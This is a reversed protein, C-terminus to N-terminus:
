CSTTLRMTRSRWRCRRTWPRRHMPVRFPKCLTPHNQNETQRSDVKLADHALALPQAPEMASSMNPGQVLECADSWDKRSEYRSEQQM